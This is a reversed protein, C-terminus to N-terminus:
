VGDGREEQGSFRRLLGTLGRQGVELATLARTNERLAQVLVELETRDQMLREHSEELQRERASAARREVIWMCGILGAVGFQTLSAVAQAEVM